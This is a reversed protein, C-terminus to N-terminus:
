ATLCVKANPTLNCSYKKSYSFDSPIKQANEALSFSKRDNRSSQVKHINKVSKLAFLPYRYELAISGGELWSTCCKTVLFTM